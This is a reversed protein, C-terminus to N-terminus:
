WFPAWSSRSPHLPTGGFPYAWLPVFHTTTPGFCILFTTGALIAWQAAFVGAERM